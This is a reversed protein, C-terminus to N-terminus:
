GNETEQLTEVNGERCASVGDSYGAKYALWLAKILAADMSRTTKLKEHFAEILIEVGIVVIGEV